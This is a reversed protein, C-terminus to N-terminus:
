DEEDMHNEKLGKRLLELSRLELATCRPCLNYGSNARNADTCSDYSHEPWNKNIYNMTYLM